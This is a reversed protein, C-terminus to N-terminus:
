PIAEHSNEERAAEADLLAAAEPDRYEVALARLKVRAAAVKDQCAPDRYRNHM